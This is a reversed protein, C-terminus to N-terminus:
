ISGMSEAIELEMCFSVFMGNTIAGRGMADERYLYRHWLGIGWLMAFGALDTALEEFCM